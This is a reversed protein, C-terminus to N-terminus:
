IIRDGDESCELEENSDLKSITRKRKVLFLGSAIILIILLSSVTLLGIGAPTQHFSTGGGSVVFSVSGEEQPSGIKPFAKRTAQTADSTLVNEIFIESVDELEQCKDKPNNLCSLMAKCMLPSFEKLNKDDKYSKGEFWYPGSARVVRLIAAHLALYNSWSMGKQYDGCFDSDLPTFATGSEDVGLPCSTLLEYKDETTNQGFAGHMVVNGSAPDLVFHDETYNGYLTGRGFMGVAEVTCLSSKKKADLGEVVDGVQLTNLTKISYKTEGDGSSIEQSAPKDELAEFYSASRQLTLIGTNGSMCSRSPPSPPPPPPTPPPVTIGNQPCGGKAGLSLPIQQPGGALCGVQELLDLAAKAKVIGSGYNYDCGTNVKSKASQLLVNRIQNNTCAPFHSWVKAAVGAVHPCAMSTGSYTSYGFYNGNNSTVTSEVGVGPATIETQDNAVSFWAKAEYRNVAGVSMVYPYSAPYFSRSNGANGAAAVILVDKDYVSKYFDKMINSYDGGGLSMSIVKAGNQVCKNVAKMITSTSGSGNDSLGKSIFFRFKSPDDNVGVVGKNNGKIAGITGACHTGHGDKDVNWVGGIGQNDWGTVGNSATPLDEHGIGYGTDVVCIKIQEVGPGISNAEVMNIGYPTDEYLKRSLYSSTQNEDIFGLKYFSQDMEVMDVDNRRKMKEMDQMTGSMTALLYESLEDEMTVGGFTSYTGASSMANKNKFKVIFKVQESSSNDRAAYVFPGSKLLEIICSLFLYLYCKNIFWM